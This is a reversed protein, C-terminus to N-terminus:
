LFRLFIATQDDEQPLDGRFRAVERDLLDLLDGPADRAHTRMLDYVRQLEFEEGEANQAEVIGDTYLLLRDGPQLTTEERALLHNFRAGSDLGLVLGPPELKSFPPTRDPNYLIVPNHGARVHSLVRTNADYIGLFASVFTMRDLDPYIDRNAMQLAILPDGTDRLRIHIVKKAVGMLVAAEIGHGSVDGILIGMRGDGLDIFDFFDGSVRHSPWYGLGAVVGPIEPVEAPLLHRQRLAAIQVSKNLEDAEKVKGQMQVIRSALATTTTKSASLKELNKKRLKELLEPLKQLTKGAQYPDCAQTLHIYIMEVQVDHVGKKLDLRLWDQFKGCYPCMWCRERDVIQWSADGRIDTRILSLQRRSDALRKRFGTINGELMAESVIIPISDERTRARVLDRLPGLVNMLVLHHGANRLRRSALDLERVLPVNADTLGAMDIALNVTQKLLRDRVKNLMGTTCKGHLRVIEFAGCRSAFIEYDKGQAIRKGKTGVRRATQKAM